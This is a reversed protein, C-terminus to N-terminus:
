ANSIETVIVENGHKKIIDALDNVNLWVTATNDNPHVGILFPEKFFDNDLYFIVRLESDNFLGLPTVAGPILGMIDMLESESAFTLPRTGQAKRFAKLDVRKDGKVTILYYQRRKDDRVFLNKADCEPHPNDIQALEAMNYVAQHETIEFKVGSQTLFDYTEQKNMPCIEKPDISIIMDCRATFTLSVPYSLYYSIATISM